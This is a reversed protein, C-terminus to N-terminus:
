KTDKTVDDRNNLETLARAIDKKDKRVERVDRAAANFRFSRISEKKEEVMKLLDSESMKKIEKM